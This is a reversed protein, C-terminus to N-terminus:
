QANGVDFWLEWFFDVSWQESADIWKGGIGEQILAKALKEAKKLYEYQEETFGIELFEEKPMLRSSFIKKVASKARYYDKTNGLVKKLEVKIKNYM